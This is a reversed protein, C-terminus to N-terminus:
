CVERLLFLCDSAAHAQKNTTTTMHETETTQDDMEKHGNVDVNARFTYQKRLVNTNYNNLGSQKYAADNTRFNGSIYYRAVDGGGSIGVNASLGWTVPKLLEKQWDVDPYLDPDLHYKIVDMMAPNYVPDEGRVARAENALAAYDYAGLYDPMKSKPLWELMTKVNANITMRGAKGHKTTVIVVGSAGRAGYVATASADKLISFSEIDEPALNNFAQIDREVGDILFLAQDQAGFTSIGRIWFESVDQGPEGSRQVGILGAVRGALANTMSTVSSVSLEQPEITTVAGVVSIKRQTGYGVVEVEDIVQTDEELVISLPKTPGTILQEVPKYGIFSFIIINNKQVKIKFNGDIDTAVGIGPSNKIYVSVGPMTAGSADKVTGEVEITNEQAWLQLPLLCAFLLCILIHHKM